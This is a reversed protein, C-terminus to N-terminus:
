LKSKSCTLGKLMPIANCEIFRLLGGKLTNGFIFYKSHMRCTSTFELKFPEDEGLLDYEEYKKDFADKVTEAILINGPSLYRYKKDYGTQKGYIRNKYVINFIFAIPSGDLYLIWINLWNNAALMRTLASFFKISKNSGAIGAKRAYKWTKKSIDIMESLAKEANDSKHLIIEYNGEKRLVNERHKLNSRFNSSRQKLYSAWDSHLNIYPSNAGKMEKLALDKSSATDRIQTDTFSDTVVFDLYLMDYKYEQKDLYDLVFSMIGKNNGEMILGARTSYYNAPFKITNVPIGRLIIREKKLPAIAMTEDGDKVILILMEEDKCFMKFWLEFWEFSIFPVDMDSKALLSNWVPKLSLFENYSSVAEMRLM